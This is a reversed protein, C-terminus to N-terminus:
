ESPHDYLGVLCPFQLLPLTHSDFGGCEGSFEVFGAGPPAFLPASVWVFGLMSGPKAASMSAQGRKASAIRAPMSAIIRAAPPYGRDAEIQLRLGLVAAIDLASFNLVAALSALPHDLFHDM